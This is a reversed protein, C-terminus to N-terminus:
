PAVRGSANSAASVAPFILRPSKTTNVATPAPNVAPAVRIRHPYDTLPLPLCYATLPVFIYLGEGGEGGEGDKRRRGQFSPLQLPLSIPRPSSSSPPPRAISRM